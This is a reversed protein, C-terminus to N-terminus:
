FTFDLPSVGLIQNNTLFYIAAWNEDLQDQYLALGEDAAAQSVFSAAFRDYDDAGSQVTGGILDLTERTLDTGFFTLVDPDDAVHVSVGSFTELVAVVEADQPLRVRDLGADLTAATGGTVAGDAAADVFVFTDETNNGAINPISPGAYSVTTEDPATFPINVRSDVQLDGDTARIVLTYEQSGGEPVTGILQGPDIIVFGSAAGSEIGLGGSSQLKITPEIGDSANVVANMNIEFFNSYISIPNLDVTQPSLGDPYVEAFINAKYLFGNGDQADYSLLETGTFDAPASYSIESNSVIKITGTTFNPDTDFLTLSEGIGIIDNALVDFVVTEGPRLRIRDDIVEIAM